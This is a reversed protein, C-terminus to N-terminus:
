DPYLFHRVLQWFKSQGPLLIPNNRESAVHPVQALINAISTVITPITLFSLLLDPKLYWIQKLIAYALRM